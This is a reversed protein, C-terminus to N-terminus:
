LDFDGWGADGIDLDNDDGSALGTAVTEMSLVRKIEVDPQAYQKKM